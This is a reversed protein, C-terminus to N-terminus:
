EVPVMPQQTPRQPQPLRTYVNQVEFWGGLRRGGLPLQFDYLPEREKRNNNSAHCKQTSQQTFRISKHASRSRAVWTHDNPDPVM